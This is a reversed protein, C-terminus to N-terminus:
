DHMKWRNIRDNFTQVDIIEGAGENVCGLMHRIFDSFNKETKTVDAIENGFRDTVSERESLFKM